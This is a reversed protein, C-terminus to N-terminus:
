NFSLNRFCLMKKAYDRTNKEVQVKEKNSQKQVYQKEELSQNGNLIHFEILSKLIAVLLVSEIIM